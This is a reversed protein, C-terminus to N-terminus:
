VVVVGVVQGGEVREVAGVALFVLGPSATPSVTM